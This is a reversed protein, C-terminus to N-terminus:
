QRRGRLKRLTKAKVSINDHPFDNTLIIKNYNLLYKNNRMIRTVIETLQLALHLQGFLDIIHKKGGFGQALIDCFTDKKTYVIVKYKIIVTKSLNTPLIVGAFVVFSQLVESNM